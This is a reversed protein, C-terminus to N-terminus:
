SSSTLLYGPLILQSLQFLVFDWLPSSCESLFALLCQSSSHPPFYSLYIYLARVAEAEAVPPWRKVPPLASIICYYLVLISYVTTYYYKYMYM